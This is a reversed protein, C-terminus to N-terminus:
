GELEIPTSEDVGELKKYVDSTSILVLAEPKMREMNEIAEDILARDAAPDTNALYKEARVGCYVVLEHREGFAESINKSNYLKDFRHAAALNGGVFGTYGVLSSTM